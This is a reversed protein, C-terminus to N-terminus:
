SCLNVFWAVTVLTWSLENAIESMATAIRNRDWSAEKLSYLVQGLRSLVTVHGTILIAGAIGDGGVTWIKYAMIFQPATRLSVAIWGKVMADTIKLNCRRAVIVIVTILLGSLFTTCTDNGDWVYGKFLITTVHVIVVITLFAYSVIAQRTTRSSKVQNARFMLLLNLLLFGGFTLYWTISVGQTTRLMRCFQAYGFVAICVFQIVFLGDAILQDMKSM